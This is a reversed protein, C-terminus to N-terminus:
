RGMQYLKNVEGTSLARNYVRIDDLPGNFYRNSASGERGITVEENVGNPNSATTGSNDLLGNLYLTCTWDGSSGSRVMAVHQWTNASLAKTWTM